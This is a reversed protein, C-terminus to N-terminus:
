LNEILFQIGGDGKDLEHVGPHEYYVCREPIGLTQYFILVKEAVPRASEVDFLEDHLGLEIYLPRPCILGAVETDFFLNAANYWGKDGLGYRRRDNLFCSSFAVKIRTEAATGYLTHFGGYSLGIMGIRDSIIDERTTLYDLARQLMYIELAVLSGGLQKCKQDLQGYEPRRGYKEDWRFLQPAFVAVGHRLVRRTMDNYNASGFFNSCFEPTGLGGHQSIVLPVSGPDPPLFLIGYLELGPLVGIWMRTISGLDDTAVYKERVTPVSEPRSQTLPWGLMECYKQRYPELSSEYAAVSSMDPKFFAARNKEAQAYQHNILNEVQSLFEERYPNGVTPEESYLNLVLRRNSLSDGRSVGTSKNESDDAPNGPNWGEYFLWCNISKQWIV